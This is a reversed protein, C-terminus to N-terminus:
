KLICKYLKNGGGSKYGIKNTFWYFNYVIHQPNDVLFYGQECDIIEYATGTSKDYYAYHFFVTPYRTEYGFFLYRDTEFLSFFNLPDKYIDKNDAKQTITEKSIFVYKPVFKRNELFYLTDSLDKIHLKHDYIYSVTESNQFRKHGSTGNFEKFTKLTDVIQSDKDMICYNYPSKNGDWYAYHIILDGDENCVIKDCIRGRSYTDLTGYCGTPIDIGEKFVGEFNYKLIKGRSSLLIYILKNKFDVAIDDIQWYEGASVNTGKKGIQRIYNGVSDYLVVSRSPRDAVIFCDKDAVVFVFTGFSVTDGHNGVVPSIGAFSEEMLCPKGRKMNDLNITVVGSDSEIVLQKKVSQQSHRNGCSYVSLLIFLLTLFNRMMRELLSQKYM